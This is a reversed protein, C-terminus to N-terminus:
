CTLSGKRFQGSSNPRQEFDGNPCNGFDLLLKEPLKRNTDSTGPQGGLGGPGGTLLSPPGLGRVGPGRGPALPGRGGQGPGPPAAVAGGRRRGLGGLGLRRVAGPGGSGHTRRPTPPDPTASISKYWDHQLYTHPPYSSSLTVIIILM